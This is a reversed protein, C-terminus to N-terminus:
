RFVVRNTNVVIHHNYHLLFGSTEVVVSETVTSVAANEGWIVEVIYLTELQSLPATYYMERLLVFSSAQSTQITTTTHTLHTTQTSATPDIM